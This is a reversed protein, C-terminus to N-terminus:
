LDNVTSLIIYLHLRRVAILNSHQISDKHLRYIIAPQACKILTLVTSLFQFCIPENWYQAISWFAGTAFTKSLHSRFIMRTANQFSFHVPLLLYSVFRQRKWTVSNFNSCFLSNWLPGVLGREHASRRKLVAQPFPDQHTLVPHNIPALNSSPCRPPASKVPRLKYNLTQSVPSTRASEDETGGHRRVIESRQETIVLTSVL